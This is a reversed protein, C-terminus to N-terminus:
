ASTAARRKERQGNKLKRVVDFIEM